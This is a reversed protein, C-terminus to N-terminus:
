DDLKNKLYTAVTQALEASMESGNDIRHAKAGNSWNVDIILYKGWGPKEHYVNIGVTAHKSGLKKISSDDIDVMYKDDVISIVTAEAVGNFIHWPTCVQCAFFLIGGLLITMIRKM